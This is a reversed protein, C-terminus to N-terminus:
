SKRFTNQISWRPPPRAHFVAGMVAKYRRRGTVSFVTSGGSALSQMMLM